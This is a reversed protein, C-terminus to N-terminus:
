LPDLDSRNRDNEQLAPPNGKPKGKKGDMWTKEVVM